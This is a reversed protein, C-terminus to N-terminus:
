RVPVLSRLTALLAQPTVPKQLVVIDGFTKQLVESRYGTCVCFPVGKERLKVAVPLSSAGRLNADIIAVDPNDPGSLKAMAEDISATPGVVEHGAEEIMSALEDAIIFEDELILVKLMANAATM